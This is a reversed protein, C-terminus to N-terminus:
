DGLEIMIHSTRKNIRSARGRARPMSRKLTVGKEVTISRVMLDEPTGVGNNTRANAVASALLKSMPRAARKNTFRLIETAERVDKGRISDAVLRMKRPSQRYTKLTAKM